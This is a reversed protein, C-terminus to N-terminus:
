GKKLFERFADLDFRSGPCTKYQGKRWDYGAMLGVERHGLIREVPIDYNVMYALCLQKLVTLHAMDPKIIDYNGVVCIGISKSNMGLEKAHAGSTKDSRGTLVVVRSDILEVGKHYGIDSWKNIEMHYKKIAEWSRGENDITLSHHIIIYKPKNM